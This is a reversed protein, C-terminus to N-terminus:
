PAAVRSRDAAADTADDAGSGARGADEAVSRYPRSPLNPNGVRTLVLQLLNVYREAFAAECYSFYFEWRRLFADDFGLERVADARDLFRSRWRRLTEAYHPALNELDEVLLRSSAEMAAGMANLSPLHGGPFIFRQVYDPRRRYADYRQDPITIVQAAVLGNEALLEDCAAFFEPLHRHGVAELMEISVIRDFRGETRRYDELRIEVQEELGARRVRERARDAQAESLTLGTVRCGLESAAWVAFGGWGCGIELVRDDPGIRAKEAISRYKARQAEELTADESPFRACSYTMTPDLFLEFFDNGLDYHERINRRAGRLTNERLRHYLWGAAAGLLYLPSGGRVAGRNRIALRILAVLDDTSWDGEIYSAGAGVEGDVLLGRFFAEDRVRLTAEPEGGPGFVRVDGDPLRLTLRGEDLADFGRLAVRRAISM